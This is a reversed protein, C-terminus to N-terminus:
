VDVELEDFPELRQAGDAVVTLQLWHGQHLRYVEIVRALPDVLWIHGVGARAYVAMKKLRDLRASSPSLVECIWDPVLEFAPGEPLRPMRERRWGALDPVLVDAGLHLEPEDLIWWGGPHDGGGPRDLEGLEFGLASRARAHRPAPRP